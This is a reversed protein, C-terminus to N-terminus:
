LTCDAGARSRSWHELAGAEAEGAEGSVTGGAEAGGFSLVM